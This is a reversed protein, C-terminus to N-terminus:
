GSVNLNFMSSNVALPTIIMTRTKKNNVKFSPLVKKQHKKNSVKIMNQSNLQIKFSNQCKFKM